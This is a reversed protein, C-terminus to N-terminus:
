SRPARVRTYVADRPTTLVFQLADALRYGAIALQKLALDQGQTTYAQPVKAPSQPATYVFTEAIAHSEVAWNTVNKDAIQPGLSSVPHLGMVKAALASVWQRGTANLPRRMQQTWLGLGEDWMAHLETAYPVGSIRWSNGGRDGTPFASSFYNAAHLPQHVDGVIHILFRIMREKDLSSSTNLLTDESQEIAWVANDDAPPPTCAAKNALRCVPIDIVSTHPPTLSAALLARIFPALSVCLAM